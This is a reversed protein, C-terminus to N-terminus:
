YGIRSWDRFQALPTGFLDIQGHEHPVLGLLAKVLTTKGSGNGGLLALVERQEVVMSVDRLIPVGGLSVGLDTIAVPTM